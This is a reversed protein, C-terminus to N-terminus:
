VDSWKDKWIFHIDIHVLWQSSKGEDTNKLTTGSLSQLAAATWKQTTGAYHASSDSFWTRTKEKKTLQDCRVGGWATVVHRAASPMTVPSFAMPM